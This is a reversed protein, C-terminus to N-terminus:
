ICDEASKGKKVKYFLAQLLFIVVFITIQLHKLDFITGSSQFRMLKGSNYKFLIPMMLFFEIIIISIIKWKASNKDVIGIFLTFLCFIM